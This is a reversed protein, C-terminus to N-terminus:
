ESLVDVVVLGNIAVDFTLGGSRESEWRENDNMNTWVLESAAELEKVQELSPYTPAGMNVWQSMPNAHELDIRSHRVASTPGLDLGILTITCTSGPTMYNKPHNYMFIRKSTPGVTPGVDGVIDGVGAAAALSTVLMGADTDCTTINKTHVKTVTYKVNGTGHLLQFARYSPKPIGQITLLGFGGHFPTPILSGEEFVDSFTWYSLFPFSCLFTYVFFM